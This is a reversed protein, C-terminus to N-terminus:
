ASAKKGNRPKVSARRAIAQLQRIDKDSLARISVNNNVELPKDPDGQVMVRDSQHLIQKGLWILMGTSGPIFQHRVNESDCYACRPLFEGAHETIKGCDKCITFYRDMANRVQERRLSVKATVYNRDLVKKLEPDSNVRRSFGAESYDLATAIEYQTCNAKCLAAVLKLDIPKREGNKVGKPRGPKLKEAM